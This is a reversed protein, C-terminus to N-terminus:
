LAKMCSASPAAWSHRPRWMGWWWAGPAAPSDDMPSTLGVTEGFGKGILAATLALMERM